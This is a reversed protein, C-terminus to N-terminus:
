VKTNMTNVAGSRLLNASFIGQLLALLCALLRGLLWGFLWALDARGLLRGLLLGLLWGFRAAPCVLRVYARGAFGHTGFHVIPVM